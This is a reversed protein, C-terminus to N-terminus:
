LAPVCRKVSAAHDAGCDGRDNTPSNDIKMRFVCADVFGLLAVGGDGLLAIRLNWLNIANETYDTSQCSFWQTDALVPRFHEPRTGPYIRSANLASLKEKDYGWAVSDDQENGALSRNGPLM